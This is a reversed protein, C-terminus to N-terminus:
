LWGALRGVRAMGFMGGVWRALEASKRVSRVVVGAVM